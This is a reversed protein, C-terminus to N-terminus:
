YGYGGYRQYRERREHRRERREERDHRDNYGYGRQYYGGGNSRWSQRYDRDRDGYSRGYGDNGRYQDGYVQGGGYGGYSQAMAAGPVVLALVAAALILPGKMIMELLHSRAGYNKCYFMSSSRGLFAVPLLHEDTRLSIVDETVGATM